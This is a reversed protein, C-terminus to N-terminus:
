KKWLPESWYRGSYPDPWNQFEPKDLDNPTLIQPDPGLGSIHYGKLEGDKNVLVNMNLVSM